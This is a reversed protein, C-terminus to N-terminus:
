TLRKYRQWLDDTSQNTVELVTELAIHIDDQLRTPATEAATLTKIYATPSTAVEVQAGWVFVSSTGDLAVTIDALIPTTCYLQRISQVELHSSSLRRQSAM